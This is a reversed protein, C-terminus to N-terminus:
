PLGMCNAYYTVTASWDSFIGLIGVQKALVDLTVLIDGDNRLADLTTQYYFSPSATGKTPLVEEVIRGSRELTWTIISLGADKADRAYQSPVIQGNSDVTLLAWMPPAVIKVGQKAYSELDARSPLDKPVNADDLYVAQKGFAPAHQIWYLVDALNFSQAFVDKPRIHEEIYDDIMAKAYNAQSGFVTEVQLKAKRNPGKLEPTFKAGLSKILKISEKHSLLKGGTAYLDTRWNATGGQFEKASLADPNFADMKGKLSKFQKLTLDSTCCLASAAKTRTGSTNFEAPSFPETCESALPTLLINTTTHLDCQDHRCVLKGDSTFTVDCELIGAGMRAGAEHSEQTHEPFQLAGGGRHGISFTTQQFPGDACAELQRKLGSGSLKDVLYFPRPGLQM